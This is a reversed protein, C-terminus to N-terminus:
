EVEEVKVSVKINDDRNYYIPNGNIDFDIHKYGVSLLYNDIMDDIRVM